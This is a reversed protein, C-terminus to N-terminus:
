LHEALFAQRYFPLEVLPGAEGSRVVAKRLPHGALGQRGVVSGEIDRLFVQIPHEVPLIDIKMLQYWAGTHLLEFRAGLTSILRPFPTGFIVLTLYVKQGVSLNM